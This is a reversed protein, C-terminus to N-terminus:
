KYSGGAHPYEGKGRKSSLSCVAWPYGILFDQDAGVLWHGPFDRAIEAHALTSVCPELVDIGIATN